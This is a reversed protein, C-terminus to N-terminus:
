RGLQSLYRPLEREFEPFYQSIVRIGFRRLIAEKTERDLLFRFAAEVCAEPTYRGAVLKDYTSKSMTVHHSSEGTADRVLVEFELPDANGTYKIEIM